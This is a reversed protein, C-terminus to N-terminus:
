ADGADDHIAGTRDDGAGGDGQGVLGGADLQCRDATGCADVRELRHLDAGVGDRHFELAELAEGGGAVDHPDTIRRRHVRRQIGPSEFFGHFDARRGVDDLRVRRPVQAGGEILARDLAQGDEASASAVRQVEDERLRADDRAGVGAAADVHVARAVPRPVEGKEGNRV